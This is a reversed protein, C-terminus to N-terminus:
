AGSTEIKAGPQAGGSRRRSLAGIRDAADGRHSERNGGLGEAQPRSVAALYPRPSRMVRRGARNYRDLDSSISHVVRRRARAPSQNMSVLAVQIRKVSRPEGFWLSTYLHGAVIRVAGVAEFAKRTTTVARDVLGAHAVALNPLLAHGTSRATAAAPLRASARVIVGSLSRCRRRQNSSEFRPDNRLGPGRIWACSRRVNLLLYFRLPLLSGGVTTALSPPPPQNKPGIAPPCPRCDSLQVCVTAPLLRLLARPSYKAHTVAQTLHARLRM